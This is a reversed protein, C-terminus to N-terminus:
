SDAERGQRKVGPFLGEGQVFDVPTEAPGVCVTEFFFIGQGQWSDLGLRLFSILRTKVPGPVPQVTWAEFGPPPSIERLQGSRDKLRGQRRYLPYRSEEGHTFRSPRPTSWGGGDLALTLSLTAIGRTERQAKM